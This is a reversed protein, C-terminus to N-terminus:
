SLAAEPVDLGQIRASTQYYGPLELLEAHTGEQVL